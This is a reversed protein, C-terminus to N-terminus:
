ATARLSHDQRLAELRLREIEKIKKKLLRPRAKRSAAIEPFEYFPNKLLIPGEIRIYEHTALCHDLVAPPFTKLNYQCLGLAHTKEYFRNLRAEYEGVRETGPANELVWSMDGAACLGTFGADLAGQVAEELATIMKDPDFSGGKLHGGEKTVLILAGRREEAKVDIGGAELGARFDKLERECCIYLCQEGRELGGRIYEIAAQM